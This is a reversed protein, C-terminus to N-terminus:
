KGDLTELVRWEGGSVRKVTITGGVLDGKEDYAIRPSTVGPMDTKALEALIRAPEASGARKMAAVLV